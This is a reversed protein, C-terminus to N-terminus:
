SPFFYWKGIGIYRSEFLGFSVVRKKLENPFYAMLLHINQDYSNHLPCRSHDHQLPEHIVFAM